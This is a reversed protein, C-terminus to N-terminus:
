KGHIFVGAMHFGCHKCLVYRSDLMPEFKHKCKHQTYLDTIVWKWKSRMLPDCEADAVLDYHAIRAEIIRDAEQRTLHDLAM